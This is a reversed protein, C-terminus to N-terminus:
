KKEAQVTKLLTEIRARTEADRVDIARLLTGDPGILLSTPFTTIGYAATTAGRPTIASYRIRTAGGGDLAILFPLDRGDWVQKRGLELRRDMDAISDASDDHVAIIVLGKDHFEDHLKMLKPMSAICPGCWHGWFDLLVVKGRLSALTVPGGNKWGKIGRLEPAPQGILTTTFTPPLDIQLNLERRGTEIRFYRCVSDVDGGQADLGYEGPPLLLELQEHASFSYVARLDIRGPKFAFADAWELARGNQRLGLSTLTGTVRCAPRLRIDLVKEGGFDAPRLEQLAVQGHQADLVFLTSALEDAPGSFNPRFVQAAQVTAKGDAGTMELQAKGRPAFTAGRPSALDGFNGNRGIAAGAVPRGDPDLVRVHLEGRPTVLAAGNGASQESATLGHADRKGAASVPHGYAAIAAQIIPFQAKCGALDEASRAFELHGDAYGVWVGGPYEAIPEHVVVTAGAFQQPFREDPAPGPRTYVLPPVGAPPLPLREPWVSVNAYSQELADLLLKRVEVGRNL